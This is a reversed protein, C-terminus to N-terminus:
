DFINQWLFIMNKFITEYNKFGKDVEIRKCLATAHIIKSEQSLIFEMVSSAAAM